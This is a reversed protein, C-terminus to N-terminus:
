QGWTLEKFSRPAAWGLLYLRCKSRAVSLVAFLFPRGLAALEVAEGLHGPEVTKGLRDNGWLFTGIEFGIDEGPIGLIGLSDYKM